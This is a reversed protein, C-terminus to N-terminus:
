ICLSLIEQFSQTVLIETIEMIESRVMETFSSIRSNCNEGNITIKLSFKTLKLTIEHSNASIINILRSCSNLDYFQLAVLNQSISFNSELPFKERIQIRHSM